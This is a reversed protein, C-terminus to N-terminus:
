RINATAYDVYTIKTVPPASHLPRVNGKAEPMTKYNPGQWNSARAEELRDIVAGEGYALVAKHTMSLLAVLGSEEYFERRATKYDLWAALENRLKASFSDPFQPVPQTKAPKARGREAKPKVPAVASDEGGVGAAGAYVTNCGGRQPEDGRSPRVPSVADPGNGAFVPHTQARVPAPAPAQAEPTPAPADPNQPLLPGRPVPPQQPKETEAEFPMESNKFEEATQGGFPHEGRSAANAATNETEQNLTGQKSNITIPDLAEVTSQCTSESHKIRQKTLAEDLAKDSAKDNKSLALVTPTYQNKGEQVVRVFDWEALDSLLKKYTNYSSVGIAAMALHPPMAFERVWGMRNNYEVLWHHLAGHGPAILAPNEFAFDFWRRSLDYGNM